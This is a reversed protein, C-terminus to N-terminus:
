KQQMLNDIANAVDSVCDSKPPQRTFIKEPPFENGLHSELSVLIELARLSDMGPIDSFIPTSSQVVPVSEGADNYSARICEIVQNTTELSAM